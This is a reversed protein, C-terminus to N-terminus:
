EKKNKATWIASDIGRLHSNGLVEGIKYYYNLVYPFNENMYQRFDRNTNMRYYIGYSAAFCVAEIVFLTKASGKVFNWINSKRTKPLM